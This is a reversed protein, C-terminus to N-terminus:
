AVGWFQVFISLFEKNQKSNAAKQKLDFLPFPCCFTKTKELLKQVVKAVFLLKQVENSCKKFLKKLFKPFSNSFDRAVQPFGLQLEGFKKNRFHTEFKM